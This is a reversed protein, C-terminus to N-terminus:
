ASERTLLVESEWRVDWLSGKVRVEGKGEWRGLFGCVYVGFRGEMVRM